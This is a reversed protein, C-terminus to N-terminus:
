GLLEQHRETRSLQSIPGEDYDLELWQLADLIQEVNEPPSRERDTDEIRLVLSGGSGRAMLWNYLATRAGGIHLAGTPSPAFRVRMVMLSCGHQDTGVHGGRATGGLGELAAVLAAAPRDLDEVLARPLPLRVRVGVVLQGLVALRDLAGTHLRHEDVGDVQQVRRAVVGVDPLLRQGRQRRGQAHAVRESRGAHHQVGPRRQLALDPRRDLAGALDDLLGQRLRPRALQVELVGGAGAARQPARELLEGLEQAGAPAALAEAHAQVGTVQERGAVVHAGDLADVVHELAEVGLDAQLLQAGKVEVVGELRQAGVAVTVGRDPLALHALVAASREQGGRRERVQGADQLGRAVAVRGAARRALLDLQGLLQALTAPPRTPQALPSGRIRSSCGRRRRSKASSNAPLVIESM